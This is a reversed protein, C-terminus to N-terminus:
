EVPPLTATADGTVVPDGNQDVVELDVDVVTEDPQRTVDSIEGTATLTDGLWARSQFRSRFRSIAAVGFWDTIVRSAVGMVFMGQAFVSENGASKAYPEDYHIPNFDGSAGAYKVFHRQELDEVVVEPGEDGVSLAGPDPPEESATPTEGDRPTGGDTSSEGSSKETASRESTEDGGPSDAADDGGSGDEETGGDGDGGGGGNGDEDIAGSTEIRTFRELLVTEDNEDTYETEFVAFTMTGGRSGERQYLDALTTTATLVDGVVVPRQFEYEQEGHVIYERQFGLDFGLDEDIGPPRYRPFYAVRTLTLPAPIAQYGRETAVEEDRYLPNEDTIARAFETVKGREVELDTVTAVSEGVMEELEDIPKTPM